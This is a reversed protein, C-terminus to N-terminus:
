RGPRRKVAAPLSRGQASQGASMVPGPEVRVMMVGNGGALLSTQSDLAASAYFNGNGGSMGDLRTGHELEWTAGGDRTHWIGDETGSVFAEQASTFWGTMFTASSFDGVTVRRWTKGGDITRMMARYRGFGIGHLGDPSMRADVIDTFSDGDTLQWTQGADTTRFVAGWCAVAIATREGIFQVGGLCSLLSTASATWTTGGDSSYAVGNSTIAIGRGAPTFTIRARFSVAPPPGAFTGRVSWTAGGDTSRAVRNTSDVAYATSADAFVVDNWVTSGTDVEGAVVQWHAGGDTTRRLGRGVVALGQNASGFSLTRIVATSGTPTSGIDTWSAGGDTSRRLTGNEAAVVLIGDRGALARAAKNMSDTEDGHWATSATWSRGGDISLQADQSSAAALAVAHTADVFAVLAFRQPMNAATWTLGGDDSRAARGDGAVLISLDSAFAISFWSPYPATYVRAWQAGGNISRFVKGGSTLLVGVGNRFKISKVLDGSFEASDMTVPQWTAGADTSRLLRPIPSDAAAAVVTTADAFAVATYTLGPVVGERIAQWHLGADTTRLVAGSQGVAVGTAADGFSLSELRLAQPVAAERVTAWSLGKDTSRIITGADGVAVLTTADLWEMARMTDGTPLKTYAWRLYRLDVADSIATDGTANAVIARVSADGHPPTIEVDPTTAGPLDTWESGTVRLQWRYTLGTGAGAVHFQPVPLGPRWAQPEPQLRISPPPRVTLTASASIVQGGTNQVLCRVRKGNDGLTVPPLQFEAATAGTANVYSVGDSSIQWQYTPTPFGGAVVRFSPTAGVGASVDVPATTVFAAVPTPSVSLVAAPSTVRGSANVAVARVRLGDSSVTLGTLTLSPSAENALSTWSLGDRSTEWGITPAPVGTAVVRFVATGPAVTSVDAPGTSFVPAVPAPAATLRASASTVSGLANTVVVRFFAGDDSLAVGPLSLTSDNAGPLDRFAVGDASRQWQFAISTGTATVSWQAAQGVTATLDAPQLTIAAAMPTATVRLSVISSAFIAGTATSTVVVRFRANDDRDTLGTPTYSPQTAGDIPQWQNGIERQWQFTALGTVGVSFSASQGAVVAQDTPQTVIALGAVPPPPPEAGGSGGGGCGSLAAAASVALVSLLRKLRASACAGRPSMQCNM